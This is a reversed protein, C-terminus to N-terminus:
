PIFLLFIPLYKLIAIFHGLGKINNNKEFNLVVNFKNNSLYM